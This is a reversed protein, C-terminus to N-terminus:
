GLIFKSIKKANAKPNLAFVRETIADIAAQKDIKAAKKFIEADWFEETLCYMMTNWGYEEGYKNRKQVAGCMTVFLGMQLDTLAKDFRSKDESSFGALQKLEHVPLAHYERLADIIRKSFESALGDAYLEGFTRGGRRAAFFKPYWGRTIYGAKRFFVKSYAVDDRERLVRVRWEWPDTEPDGTHWHIPSNPPENDWSFDILGFVGEDNGGAVSFGAANLQKCFDSYNKIM